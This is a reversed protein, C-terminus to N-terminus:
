NSRRVEGRARRQPPDVVVGECIIQSVVQGDVRCRILKFELTDYRPLKDGPKPPLLAVGGQINLAANGAGRLDPNWLRIGTEAWRRRILKERAPQDKPEPEAIATVPEEPTGAEAERNGTAKLVATEEDIISRTLGGADSAPEAAADSTSPILVAAEQHCATETVGSTEASFEGALPETRAKNGRLLAAVRFLFQVARFNGLIDAMKGFVPPPKSLYEALSMLSEWSM